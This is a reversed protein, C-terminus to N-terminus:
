SARRGDSIPVPETAPEATVQEGSRPSPTVPEKKTVAVVKWIRAAFLAWPTVACIALAIIASEGELPTM